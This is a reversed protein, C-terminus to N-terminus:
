SANSPLLTIQASIVHWRGDLWCYTDIYRSIGAQGDELEYPADADVQVVDNFVRLTVHQVTLSKYRRTRDGIRALFAAKELRTGNGLIVLGERAMHREFWDVNHDRVAAIYQENLARVAAIAVESNRTSVTSEVM